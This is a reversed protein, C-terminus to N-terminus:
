RRCLRPAPALGTGVHTAGCRAEGRGSSLVSSADRDHERVMTLDLRVTAYGGVRFRGAIYRNRYSHRNSGGGHVLVVLGACEGLTDLVGMSRTPYPAAFDAILTGGAVPITLQREATSEGGVGWFRANGIRESVDRVIESPALMSSGTLLARVDEDSVPQFNEYMSSVGQGSRMERAVVLADVRARVEAAGETTAVPVAAIIARPGLARIAEIAACMTAGTTIGDDALIVTRGQISTLSRGQRYVRVRREIEVRTSASLRRLVRQPVGIYWAVTDAVLRETGEAIAGLAVEEIGPVGVKCAVFVDMSAGIADAVCRAISVGGRALGLVMVDPETAYQRLLPVLAAGAALRDRYTVRAGPGFTFPM